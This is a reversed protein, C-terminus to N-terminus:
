FTTPPRGNGLCLFFLVHYNLQCKCLKNLLMYFSALNRSRNAFITNCVEELEPVYTEDTDQCEFWDKAVKKHLEHRRQIAHIQVDSRLDFKMHGEYLRM